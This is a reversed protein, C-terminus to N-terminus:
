VGGEYTLKTEVDMELDYIQVIHGPEPLDSMTLKFGLENMKGIVAEAIPEAEFTTRAMTHVTYQYYRGMYGHGSGFTRQIGPVTPNYVIRPLDKQEKPWTMTVYTSLENLKADIELRFSQM